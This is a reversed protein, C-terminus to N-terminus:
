QWSGLNRLRLAFQQYPANGLEPDSRAQLHLVQQLTDRPTQSWPDKYAALNQIVRLAQHAREHPWRDKPPLRNRHYCAYRTNLPHQDQHTLLRHSAADPPSKHQTQRM